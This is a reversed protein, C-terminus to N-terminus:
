LESRHGRDSLSGRQRNGDQDCFSVALGGTDLLSSNQILVGLSGEVKGVLVGLPVSALTVLWHEM